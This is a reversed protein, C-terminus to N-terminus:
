SLILQTYLTIITISRLQCLECLEREREGLSQLALCVSMFIMFGLHDVARIVSLRVLRREQLVACSAVQHLM